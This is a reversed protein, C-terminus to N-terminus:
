SLHFVCTTEILTFVAIIEVELVMGGHGKSVVVAIWRLHLLIRVHPSSLSQLERSYKLLYNGRQFDDDRSSMREASLIGSKLSVCSLVEDSSCYQEWESSRSSKEKGHTLEFLDDNQISLNTVQVIGDDASVVSCTSHGFSLFVLSSKSPGHPVTQSIAHTTADFLQM